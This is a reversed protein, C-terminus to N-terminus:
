GLALIACSTGGHAVPDNVLALPFGSFRRCAMGTMRSTLGGARATLPPFEGPAAVSSPRRPTCAVGGHDDDRLRLLLSALTRARGAAPCCRCFPCHRRGGYAQQVCLREEATPGGSAMFEPDVCSTVAQGTM